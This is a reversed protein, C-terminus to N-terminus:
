LQFPAQSSHPQLTGYPGGLMGCGGAGNWSLQKEQPCTRDQLLRQCGLVGLGM